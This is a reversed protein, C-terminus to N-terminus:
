KGKKGSTPTKKEARLVDLQKQLADIHEQLKEFVRDLRTRPVETNEEKVPTEFATLIQYFTTEQNLLHDLREIFGREEESLLDKHDLWEKEKELADVTVTACLSIAVLDNCHGVLEKAFKEWGTLHRENLYHNWSEMDRQKVALASLVAVAEELHYLPKTRGPFDKRSKWLQVIIECCENELKVKKATDKEEKARTICEALYHSMWRMTMKCRGEQSFEEVLKKGLSLIDQSPKSKEM